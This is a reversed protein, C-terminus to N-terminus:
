LETILFLGSGVAYISTDVYYTGSSPPSFFRIIEGRENHYINEYYTGGNWAAQNSTTSSCQDSNPPLRWYDTGQKLCLCVCYGHTWRGLFCYTKSADLTMETAYTGSGVTSGTNSANGIWSYGGGYTGWGLITTNPKLKYVLITGTFEGYSLSPQGLVIEVENSTSSTWILEVSRCRQKTTFTYNTAGGGSFGVNHVTSSGTEEARCYHDQGASVASPLDLQGVSSTHNATYKILYKAGVEPTFASSKLVDSTSTIESYWYGQAVLGETILGPTSVGSDEIWTPVGSSLKLIDGENGASLKVVNGSSNALLMDGQSLTLGQIDAMKGVPTGGASAIAGSLGPIDSIELPDNTFETGNHRLVEGSTPSSVSADHLDDLMVSAQVGVIDFRPSTTDNYIVAVVQDEKIQDTQVQQEALYIPISSVTGLETEVSLTASAPSDHSAKFVIRQGASLTSIFHGDPNATQRFDVLYSGASNTSQRYFSSGSELDNVPQAYQKIYEPLVLDGQSFSTDFNSSM